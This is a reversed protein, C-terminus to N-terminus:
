RGMVYEVEEDTLEPFIPLSLCGESLAEGQPFDGKRYGLHAYAKQMHCPVPYHIGPFIGRSELYEKLRDRKDTVVVFLHYVHGAWEPTIQTKIGSNRIGESYRRAIDRRKESWGDIYKLKLSLVAGHIGDMRMNFGIEDHFYKVM